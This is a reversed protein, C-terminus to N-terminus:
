HIEIDGENKEIYVSKDGYQNVTRKSHRINKQIHTNTRKKNQRYKIYGFISSLILVGIGSFIWEIHKMSHEM